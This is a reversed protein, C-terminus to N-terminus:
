RGGKFLLAPRGKGGSRREGVVEAGARRLAKSTVGLDRATLPEASRALRALASQVKAM